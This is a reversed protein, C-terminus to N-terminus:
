KSILSQNKLVVFNVVKNIEDVERLVKHLRNKEEISRSIGIIFLDKKLVDIKKLAQDKTLKKDIKKKNVM